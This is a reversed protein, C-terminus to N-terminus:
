GIENKVFDLTRGTLKYIFSESERGVMIYWNSGDHVATIPRRYFGDMIYDSKADADNIVTQEVISGFSRGYDLSVGFKVVDDSGAVMLIEPYRTYSTSAALGHHGIEMPGIARGVNWPYESVWPYNNLAAYDYNHPNAFYVYLLYVGNTTSLLISALQDPLGTDPADEPPIRIMNLIAGTPGDGIYFDYNRSGYPTYVNWKDDFVAHYCYQYINGTSSGVLVVQSSNYDYTVLCLLDGTMGGTFADVSWSTGAANGHLVTQAAGCAWFVSGSYKVDYLNESTNSTQSSWAGTANTTQYIKGANGVVVYNTSGDYALANFVEGAATLRQAWTQGSDGSTWVGGVGCAIFLSGDYIVDHIGATISGEEATPESYYVYPRLAIMAGADGVIYFHGLQHDYAIDNWDATEGSYSTWSTLNETYYIAGSPGVAVVVPVHWTSNVSVLNQSCGTTRATWTALDDSGEIAEGNTGVAIWKKLGWVYHVKLLDETTVGTGRRTWTTFDTSLASSIFGGSGDAEGVIVYKGPSALRNTHIGYLNLTGAGVYSSYNNITYTGALIGGVQGNDGVFLCNDSANTTADRWAATWTANKDSITAYWGFEANNYPWGPVAEQRELAHLAYYDFGTLGEGLAFIAFFIEGTATGCLVSSEWVKEVITIENVTGVTSQIWSGGIPKFAEYAQGLNGGVVTPSYYETRALQTGGSYSGSVSKIDFDIVGGDTTFSNWVGLEGIVVPTFFPGSIQETVTNDRPRVANYVLNNGLQSTRIPFDVADPNHTRLVQYEAGVLAPMPRETELLEDHIISVILYIDTSDNERIFCGPWIKRIWETGGGQVTTDTGNTHIVGESYISYLNRGEIMPALRSFFIEAGWEAIYYAQSMWDGIDERTAQWYQSNSTLIEEIPGFDPRLSISSDSRSLYVNDAEMLGPPNVQDVHARSVKSAQALVVKFYKRPM